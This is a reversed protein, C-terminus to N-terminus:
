ADQACSHSQAKLQSLWQPALRYTFDDNNDHITDSFQYIHRCLIQQQLIQYRKYVSASFLRLPEISKTLSNSDGGFQNADNV